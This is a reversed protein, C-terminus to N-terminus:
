VKRLAIFIIYLLSFTNYTPARLTTPNIDAHPGQSRTRSEDDVIGVLVLDVVLLPVDNLGEADPAPDRLGRSGSAMEQEQGDQSGGRRAKKAERAEKRKEKVKKEKEEIGGKRGQDTDFAKVTATTNTKENLPFAGAMADTSQRMPRALLNKADHILGIDFIRRADRIIDIILIELVWCSFVDIHDKLGHRKEVSEETSSPEAEDDYDDTPVESHFNMIVVALAEVGLIEEILVVTDFADDWLILVDVDHFSGIALFPGGLIIHVKFDVKCDLIDFDAPFQFYSVKISVDYLIGLLKTITRDAMVLRMTIPKPSELGFMLEPMKQESKNPKNSSGMDVSEEGYKQEDIMPIPPDISVKCRQTPIIHCQSKNRYNVVMNSLLTGRQRNNVVALMM